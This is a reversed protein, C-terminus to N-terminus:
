EDRPVDVKGRVGSHGVSGSGVKRVTLNGGVAYADLDGSGIKDASVDGGVDRLEVDGSGIRGITAGGSIRRAKIDGSGVELVHLSGITDLEIDGSGVDATVQGRINRAEVDGSGVDASLASAGSVRADGSGVKLHVLLNDPVSAELMLYAYNASGFSFNVIDDREATVVLRDGVRQQTLTLQKLRDPNSACAKGQVAAKAGPRANVVLDHPGIDFMVSKVGALDLQLNRPESHKCEDAFAQGAFLALPLLAIAPLMKRM